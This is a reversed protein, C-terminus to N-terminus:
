DLAIFTLLITQTTVLTNCLGGLPIGTSDRIERGRSKEAWSKHRVNENSDLNESTNPFYIQSLMYYARM